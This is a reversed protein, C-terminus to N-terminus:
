NFMDTTQVCKVTVLFLAVNVIHLIQEASIGFPLENNFFKIVVPKVYLRLACCVPCCLSNETKM